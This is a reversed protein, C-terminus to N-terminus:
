TSNSRIRNLMELLKHLPKFLVLTVIYNAVGHIIDFYIGSTWSALAMPVGGIFFYPITCLAGFSLGYFGSIVAWFYSSRNKQFLMTIIFLITWIYLYNIFWLGFGYRIGELLVFVYIIYLTRWGFILTSLIIILSVLEINPLFGLAMQIVFLVAGMMGIIVIDKIKM